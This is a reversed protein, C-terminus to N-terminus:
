RPWLSGKTHEGKHTSRSSRPRKVFMVGEMAVSRRKHADGQMHGRLSRSEQPPSM